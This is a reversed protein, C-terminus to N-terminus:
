LEVLNFTLHQICQYYVNKGNQFAPVWDPMESLVRIAEADASLQLSQLVLLNQVKGSKNIIMQMKVTGSRALNQPSKLNKELYKRYHQSGGKFVAEKEDPYGKISQITDTEVKAQEFTKIGTANTITKNRYDKRQLEKGKEYKISLYIGLTDDYYNWDGHKLRNHVMGSSDIRGKDDYWAFEGEAITQDADKYSEQRWLYGAGKFIRSVYLSDGISSVQMIYDATAINKVAEWEKDYLYYEFKQKQAIVSAPILLCLLILYRM